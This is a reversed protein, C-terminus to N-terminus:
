GPLATQSSTSGWDARIGRDVPVHCPDGGRGQGPGPTRGAEGWGGCAGPAVRPEQQRGQDIAKSCLRM